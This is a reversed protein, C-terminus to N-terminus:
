TRFDVITTDGWEGLINKGLAIAKYPTDQTLDPWVWNDSQYQPYGNSQILQVASDVGIQEFFADEILGDHFVATESNAQAILRVTTDTIETVELDIVSLGEGGYQGTIIVQTQMPYANGQADFPRAYITYETNPTLGSFNHVSEATDEFGWLSVLQDITTNMQTAWQELEAPIGILSNYRVCNASPAFRAQVEVPVVNEVTINVMPDDKTNAVERQVQGFVTSASLCVLLAILMNKM